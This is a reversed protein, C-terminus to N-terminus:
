AYKYWVVKYFQNNNKLSFLNWASSKIHFTLGEKRQFFIFFYRQKKAYLIKEHAKNKRYLKEKYLFKKVVARTVAFTMKSFRM